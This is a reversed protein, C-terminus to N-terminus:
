EEGCSVDVMNLTREVRTSRRYDSRPRIPGARSMSRWLYKRTKKLVIKLDWHVSYYKALYIKLRFLLSIHINWFATFGLIVRFLSVLWCQHDTRKLFKYLACRKRSLLIQPSKQQFLTTHTNFM